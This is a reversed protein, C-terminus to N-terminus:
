RSRQRDTMTELAAICESGIKSAVEVVQEPIDDAANAFDFFLVGVHGIPVCLTAQIGHAEFWGAEIESANALTIFRPSRAELSAAVNPWAHLDVAFSTRTWDWGGFPAGRLRGTRTDLLFLSAEAGIANATTRVFTRIDHENSAAGGQAVTVTAPNTPTSDHSESM